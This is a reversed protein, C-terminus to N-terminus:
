RPEDIGQTPFATLARNRTLSYVNLMQSTWLIGGVLVVVALAKAALTRRSHDESKALLPSGAIFLCFAAHSLYHLRFRFMPFHAVANVLIITLAICQLRSLNRKVALGFLLATSVIVPLHALLSQRTLVAGGEAFVPLVPAMTNKILNEAYNFYRLLQPLEDSDRYHVLGLFMYGDQSYSAFDSGFILVRFVVYLGIISTTVVALSFRHRPIMRTAGSPMLAFLLAVTPVVVGSEKSMLALLSLAAVLSTRIPATPTDGPREDHRALHGVLLLLFLGTLVMPRDSVWTAALWTYQSIMFVAAILLTLTKDAQQRQLIRYLLLVNTLHLALNIAQNPLAWAGFVQYVLWMSVPTLPRYLNNGHGHDQIFYYLPNRTAAVSALYNLDDGNTPPFWLAAAYVALGLLTLSAYPPLRLEAQFMRPEARLVFGRSTAWLNRAAVTRSLAVFTLLAACAALAVAVGDAVAVLTGGYALRGRRATREADGVVYISRDIHHTDSVAPDRVLARILDPSPDILDYTWTSGDLRQGDALRFRAELKQRSSADVSAEWRVNVRAGPPGTVWRAVIPLCVATVVCALAPVRRRALHETLM